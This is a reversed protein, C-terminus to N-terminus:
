AAGASQNKQYFPVLEDPQWSPYEIDDTHSMIKRISEVVLQYNPTGEMSPKLNAYLVTVDANKNILYNLISPHNLAIKKRQELLAPTLKLDDPILPEVLIEDGDAHVWNFNTLSDVRIVESARWLDHTVNKIM